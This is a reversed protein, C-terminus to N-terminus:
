HTGGATRWALNFEVMTYQQASQQDKLRVSDVRINNAWLASFTCSRLGILVAKFAQTTYKKYNKERKMAAM